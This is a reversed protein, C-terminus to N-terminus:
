RDCSFEVVFSSVVQFCVAERGGEEACGEFCGVLEAFTLRQMELVKM